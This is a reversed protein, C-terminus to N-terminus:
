SDRPSPSTYLLCTWDNYWEEIFELAADYHAQHVQSPLFRDRNVTGWYEALTQPDWRGSYAATKRPVLTNWYERPQSKIMHRRASADQHAFQKCFRRCAYSYQLWSHRVQKWHDRCFGVEKDRLRALQRQQKWQNKLIRCHADWWPQKKRDRICM